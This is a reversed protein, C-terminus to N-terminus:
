APSRSTSPSANENPADHYLNRWRWASEVITDIGSQRTQWGLEAAARAADGVLVPVDGPRRPGVRYPVERGTVREIAALVELVSHGRGSSLNYAATHGPAADDLARMARVHADALDAVHIYDRVCTGDETAYDDGHVTLTEGRLLADMALPILHSENARAEGLGHEPSAGSANFFRLSAAKLGYAAAFDEILYECMLKSRGYVNDPLRTQDEPIPQREPSGYVACSSAFILKDVEHRRMASLLELTGLVNNRYHGDPEAASAGVEIDAALHFVAAPAYREFARDLDAPARIDGEELPGWRVARAHGSALNDLTVPTHGGDALLKCVHSGIFGAGGTVLVHSKGPHKDNM